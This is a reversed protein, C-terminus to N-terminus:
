PKNLEPKVEGDSVWAITCVAKVKGTGLCKECAIKITERGTNTWFFGTGQCYGCSYGTFTEREIGTGFLPPSILIGNQKKSMITQKIM